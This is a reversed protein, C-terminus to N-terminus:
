KLVAFVTQILVKIDKRLSFKRLYHLNYDMKAPLIVQIYTTERDLGLDEHEKLVQTEDKYKISADSTIGAPFLLTAKMEDSYEKVYQLVEPRAGVFTMDGMLVNFLQPIEDIRYKRLVEGLRTVRNDQDGTIALGKKDAGEVMTRFKYITYLRGYQTVRKQKFFVPGESDKKILYAVFLMVPALLLLLITAMVKDLCLKIFISKEKKALLAYYEKVKENKMFNPLEDYNKLM